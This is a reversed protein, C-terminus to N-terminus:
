SGTEGAPTAGPQPPADAPDSVTAPDSEILRLRDRRLVDHVRQPRVGPWGHSALYALVTAVDMGSADIARRIADSQTLGELSVQSEIVPRADGADLETADDDGEVAAIELALRLAIANKWANLADGPVGLFPVWVLIGFRPLPKLTARSKHGHQARRVERRAKSMVQHVLLYALVSMAPFFVEVAISGTRLANRWNIFASLSVFAFTSMRLGIATEGHDIADLALLACTMAAIDLSVPFMLAQLGQWHLTDTAFSHLGSFSMSAVALMVCVLLLYAVTRRGSTAFGTKAYAHGTARTAAARAKRARQRM